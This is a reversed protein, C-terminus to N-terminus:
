LGRFSGLMSWLPVIGAQKFLNRQGHSNPSISSRFHRFTQFLVLYNRPLTQSASLRGTSYYSSYYLWFRIRLAAPFSTNQARTVNNTNNKMFHTGKQHSRPAESLSWMPRRGRPKVTRYVNCLLLHDVGCMDLVWSVTVGSNFVDTCSLESLRTGAEGCLICCSSSPFPASPSRIFSYPDITSGPCVFVTLFLLLINILNFMKCKLHQKICRKKTRGCSYYHYYHNTDNSLCVSPTLHVHVFGSCDHMVQM